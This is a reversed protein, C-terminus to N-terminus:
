YLRQKVRSKTVGQKMMRSIKKTCSSKFKEELETTTRAIRLIGQGLHLMFYIQRCISSLYLVKGVSFPFSNRKDYLSISFIKRVINIDLDM